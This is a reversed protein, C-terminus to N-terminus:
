DFVHETPLAAHRRNRHLRIRTVDAAVRSLDKRCRDDIPWTRPFMCRAPPNCVLLSITVLLVAKTKSSSLGCAAGTRKGGHCNKRTPRGTRTRRHGAPARRPPRTTQATTGDSTLSARQKTPVTKMRLRLRSQGRCATQASSALRHWPCLFICRDALVPASLVKFLTPPRPRQKSRRVRERQKKKKGEGRHTVRLYLAQPHHNTPRVEIIENLRQQTSQRRPLSVFSASRGPERQRSAAATKRM